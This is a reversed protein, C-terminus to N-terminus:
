LRLLAVDAPVPLFLFLLLLWSRVFWALSEQSAHVGAVSFVDM